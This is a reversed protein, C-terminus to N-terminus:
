IYIYIYKYIIYCIKIRCSRGSQGGKLALLIELLPKNNESRGQGIKGISYRYFVRMPNAGASVCNGIEGQEGPGGTDSLNITQEKFVQVTKIKHECFCAAPKFPRNNL